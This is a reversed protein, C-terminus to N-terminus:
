WKDRDCADEKILRNKNIKKEVLKEVNTETMGKRHLGANRFASGEIFCQQRREEFCSRVVAM